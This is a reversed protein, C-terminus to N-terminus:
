EIGTEEKIAQLALIRIEDIRENPKSKCESLYFDIQDVLEYLMQLRTKTNTKM